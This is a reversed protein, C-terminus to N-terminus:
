NPASVLKKRLEAVARRYRSKVTNMPEKLTKSIEEFTLNEYDHLLIVAREKFSLEGLAKSLKSATEKVEFIEDPLPETDELSDEFVKDETDLRSFPLTSKKRFFDITTNRAISMSWTKFSFARNYKKLNKFIKLFTEQVIDKTQEEDYTLYYIFNYLTTGYRKVIEDFSTLDGSLVKSILEKDTLIEHPM